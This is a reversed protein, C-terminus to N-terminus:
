FGCYEHVSYEYGRSIELELGPISAICRTWKGVIMLFCGLRVLHSLMRWRSIIFGAVLGGVPTALSPVVLRVGAKSASDLLVVQFFPIMFLFQEVM